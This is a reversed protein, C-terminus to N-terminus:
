NALLAFAPAPITTLDQNPDFMIEAQQRATKPLGTTFDIQMMNQCLTPAVHTKLLHMIMTTTTTIGANRNHACLDRIALRQRNRSFEMDTRGTINCGDAVQRKRSLGVSLAVEGQIAGASTIMAGNANAIGAEHIGQPVTGLMTKYTVDGDLYRVFCSATGAVLRRSGDQNFVDPSLAVGHKNEVGFHVLTNVTQNFVDKCDRAAAEQQPVYQQVQGKFQTLTTTCALSYNRLAIAVEDHGAALLHFKMQPALTVSRIIADVPEGNPDQAYKFRLASSAGRHWYQGEAYPGTLLMQAICVRAEAPSLNKHVAFKKAFAVAKEPTTFDATNGSNANAKAMTHSLAKLSASDPANQLAPPVPVSQLRQGHGANILETASFPM